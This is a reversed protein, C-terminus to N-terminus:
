GVAAGVADDLPEAAWGVAAGVVAAAAALGVAAGAVDAFRDPPAVAVGAAAAWPAVEVPLLTPPVTLQSTRVVLSSFSPWALTKSGAMLAAYGLMLILRMM